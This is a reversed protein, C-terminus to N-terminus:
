RPTNYMLALEGFSGQGNYTHVQTHTCSIICTFSFVFSCKYLWLLGHRSTTISGSDWLIIASLAYLWNLMNVGKIVLDDYLYTCTHITTRVPNSDSGNQAMFVEFQGRCLLSIINHLVHM